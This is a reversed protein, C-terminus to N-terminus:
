RKQMGRAGCVSCGVGYRPTPVLEVDRVSVSVSSKSVGLESAIESLTWAEARLERARRERETVKGGYGM